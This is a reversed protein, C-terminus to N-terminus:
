AVVATPHKQMVEKAFSPGSLCVFSPRISEQTSDSFVQSIRLGTDIEIGKTASVAIMEPRLQEKISIIVERTAHSPAAFILMEGDNVAAALNNTANMGDPIQVGPLYKANMRDRNISDVVESNRSWLHVEHGARAAHVALVTGWSGAGIVAIRM